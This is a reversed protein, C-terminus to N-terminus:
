GDTDGQSDTARLRDLRMIELAMNTVHPFYPNWQSHGRYIDDKLWAYANRVSEASPFEDLSM